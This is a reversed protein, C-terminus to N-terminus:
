WRAFVEIGFERVRDVETPGIRSLCHSGTAIVFTYLRATNYGVPQQGHALLTPTPASTPLFATRYRSGWAPHRYEM